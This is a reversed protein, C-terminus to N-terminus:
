QSFGTRPDKKKFAPNLASVKYSVLELILDRNSLFKGLTTLSSPLLSASKDRETVTNGLSGVLGIEPTSQGSFPLSLQHSTFGPTPTLGWRAECQLIKKIPM